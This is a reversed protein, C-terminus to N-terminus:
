TGDATGICARYSLLVDTKQISLVLNNETAQEMHVMLEIPLADPEYDSPELNM